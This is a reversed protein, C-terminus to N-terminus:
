SRGKTRPPLARKIGPELLLAGVARSLAVSLAEAPDTELPLFAEAGVAPPPEDELGGVDGFYLARGARDLLACELWAQSHMTFYRGHVTRKAGFRKNVEFKELECSLLFDAGRPPVPPRESLLVPKLGGDTLSEAIARALLASSDEVYLRRQVSGDPAFVAGVELRPRTALNGPPAIAVTVPAFSDRAGPVLGRLYHIRLAGRPRCGAGATAAIAALLLAPGIPLKSGHRRIFGNM